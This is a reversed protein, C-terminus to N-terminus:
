PVPTGPTTITDNSVIGGLGFHHLINKVIRVIRTGFDPGGGGDRSQAAFASPTSLSLTLAFLAVATIKSVRRSM